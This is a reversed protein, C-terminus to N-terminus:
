IYRAQNLLIEKLLQQGLKEGAAYVTIIIKDQPKPKQKAKNEGKKSM